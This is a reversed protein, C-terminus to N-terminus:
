FEHTLRAKPTATHTTDANAHTQAPGDSVPRGHDDSPQQQEQTDNGAGRCTCVAPCKQTHQESEV